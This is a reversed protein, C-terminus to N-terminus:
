DAYLFDVEGEKTVIVAAEQNYERLLKKIKVKDLGIKVSSIDTYRDGTNSKWVGILPEENSQLLDDYARETKDNLGNINNTIAIVVVDGDRGNSFDKHFEKATEKGSKLDYGKDTKPRYTYEESETTAAFKTFSSAAVRYSPPKQNTTKNSGGSGGTTFRGTRPDHYPNFENLANQIAKRIEDESHEKGCEICKSVAPHFSVKYVDFYLCLHRSGKM